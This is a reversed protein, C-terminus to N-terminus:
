SLHLPIANPDYEFHRKVKEEFIDAITVLIGTEEVNGFPANLATGFSRMTPSLSMYANVLPPVAAGRERVNKVLIRFNENYNAGTFLAKLKEEEMLIPLTVEPRPTVLGEPDPFQTKLFYLILDRAERDLQSYMTVKGFLYKPTLTTILTGIGDWLNDLSYIGKSFNNSPQYAPQVFSRGLEMTYPLYQKKFTDSYHFLESTPTNYEGDADPRLQNCCLYRYGGVIAKDIPNWVILQRFGDEAYDFEDVDCDLGTGGGSDRFSIERLRGIERMTQPADKAHFVYIENNGSHTKRLFKDSTLEALIVEAPIPEIIDNMTEFM